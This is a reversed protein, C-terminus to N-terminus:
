LPLVLGATFVPNKHDSPKYVSVTFSTDTSAPLRFPVIDFTLEMGYSYIRSWQRATITVKKTAVDWTGGVHRMRAYDYFVNARIRKFYVLSNIGGDPYWFPFHYDASVAGYRDPRSNYYWAGRPYVDKQGFNYLATSQRQVSGRLVIRNHPFLGPLYLRAYGSMLGGYYDNFPTSTNSIRLAYGFRPLFDRHAMRANETYTLSVRLKQLGTGSRFQTTTPIQYFQNSHEMEVLPTLWRYRYGSGLLIPLYARGTIDYHNKFKYGLLITNSLIAKGQEMTGYAADIQFKVPLGYFNLGANFLSGQDTYKYGLTTVTSNLLNQSFATVGAYVNFKNDDLLRDPDFWFPAWSHFQFQRPGKRYRKVERGSAEGGLVVTDINMVDWRVQEPNFLNRPVPSYPVIEMPSTEAPQKALLYGRPSYTTVVMDGNGELPAPSFSGYTSGTVRYEALQLIDFLHAEDRGTAISTYYLKGDAARLDSIAAYSPPVVIHIGGVRSKEEFRGVWMGCDSLGIFYYADTVPEYSFGHVSISDPLEYVKEGTVISYFGAPDYEIYAPMEGTRPEAPFLVRRANGVYGTRGERLDYYCLQSNVRQEWFTSQREETWWLRQAVLVLGTNVYGLYALKKEAGTAPDVRVLRTYKDLDTKLAYVTGDGAAVPTKYTTFSRVPTPVTVSTNQVRPLSDWHAALRDMTEHFLKTGSTGYFKRLARKTPFVMYPNRSNFWAVRDWINEGYKDWTYAVMHYGLTYHDPLHDKYSGSFFKDPRYRIGEGVIARYDLTMGPQKGRGFTTFQTEALVADGEIAWFPLQGVGVLLGQQGLIYGLARTFGRSTNGYQVTHRFEHVALQKHWPMAFTSAPPTMVFEMRAPALMVIGNPSFNQTHLLLPMKKPGHRYGYGVQRRVSDMYSALRLAHGEYYDPFVVPGNAAEIRKWKISAPEQGWDYYQANLTGTCAIAAVLPLVIRLIIKM